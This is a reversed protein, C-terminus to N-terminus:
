ETAPTGEGRAESDLKQLKLFAVDRGAVLALREGDASSALLDVSALRRGLVSADLKAVLARSNLDWVRLVGDGGGCFVLDGPGSEVSKYRSPSRPGWDGGDISEATGGTIDAAGGAGATAYADPSKTLDGDTLLTVQGAWEAELVLVGERQAVLLHRGDRTYAVDFCSKGDLVSRARIRGEPLDALEVGLSSGRQKGVLALRRGDRTAAEQAATVQGRPVAAYKQATTADWVLYEWRTNRVVGRHGVLPRYGAPAPTVEDGGVPLALRKTEQPGRTTVQKGDAAFAVDVVPEGLNLKVRGTQSDFVLGTRDAYVVAAYRGDASLDLVLAQSPEGVAFVVEVHVFDYAPTEAHIVSALTALLITAACQLWSM